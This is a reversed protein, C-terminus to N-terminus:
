FKRSQINRPYNALMTKYENNLDSAERPIEVDTVKIDGSLLKKYLITATTRRRGEYILESMQFGRKWTCMIITKVVM